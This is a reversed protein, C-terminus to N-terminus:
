TMRPFINMDRYGFPLTACLVLANCPFLFILPRCSKKQIEARFSFYFASILMSNTPCRGQCCDSTPRLVALLCIILFFLFIFLLTLKFNKNQHYCYSHFFLFLYTILQNVTSGVSTLFYSQM